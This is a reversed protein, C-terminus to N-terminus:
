CDRKENACGSAPFLATLGYLDALQSLDAPYNVFRLQPDTFYTVLWALGASDFAHIGSLDVTKVAANISPVQSEVQSSILEGSLILNDDVVSYSLRAVAAPNLALDVASM